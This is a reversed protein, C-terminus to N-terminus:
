VVGLSRGLGVRRMALPLGRPDGMGSRRQPLWQHQVEAARYGQGSHGRAIRHTDAGVVAEDEVDVTMSHAVTRGAAVKGMPAILAEIQRRQELGALVEDRCRHPVEADIPRQRLDAVAGSKQQLALRASDARDARRLAPQDLDLGTLARQRADGVAEPLVHGGTPTLLDVARAVVPLPIRRRSSTRGPHSGSRRDALADIWCGVLSVGGIIGAVICPVQNRIRQRRHLKRM